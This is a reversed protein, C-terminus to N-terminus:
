AAKTIDDLMAVLARPLEALETVSSWTPFLGRGCESMIGLGHVEVKARVAYDVMARTVVRDDPEGDTVCVIVKRESRRNSLLELGCQIAVDTPTSGGHVIQFAGEWRSAKKGFPLILQTSPFSLVAMEVGPISEVACAFAYAAGCATEIPSGGMSGSTDLLLVVSTDLKRGPREKRFVRADNVALRHLVRRDIQFGQDSRRTKVRSDALLRKRLVARIKTSAALAPQFDYAATAARKSQKNVQKRLDDIAASNIDVSAGSREHIENTMTEVLEAINVDLDGKAQDQDAGDLMAQIAQIQGSGGGAQDQAQGQSDGQSSTDSQSQDQDDGQGQSDGQSSTDSQSQDQDDGQGQSDGQSSTDSQSQDQDDGQGQSDGQSSTDSQSQDQNQAQKQQLEQKVADVIRQSLKLAETSTKLMPVEDLMPEIAKVLNPGAKAELVMRTQTALPQFHSEVRAQARLQFLLWGTFMAILPAEETCAANMGTLISAVSLADLYKRAGPWRRIHANEMRVDEVIGYVNRLVPEMPSKVIEFDSENVHGVEHHILGLRLALYVLYQGEETNSAPLAVDMVWITTGDTCGGAVRRTSIKIKKGQRGVLTQAFAPIGAAIAAAEKIISGKPAPGLLLKALKKQLEQQTSM